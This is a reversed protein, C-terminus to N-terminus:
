MSNFLQIVEIAYIIIYKIYQNLYQVWFLRTQVNLIENNDDDCNWRKKTNSIYLITAIETKANKMRM